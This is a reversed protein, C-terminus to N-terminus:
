IEIGGNEETDMDVDEWPVLEANVVIDQPTYITLYVNYQNGQKLGGTPFKIPYPFQPVFTYTKEVTGSEGNPEQRKLVITLQLQYSPDANTPPVMIGTGLRKYQLEERVIEHSLQVGLGGNEDSLHTIVNKYKKEDEDYTSTVSLPLEVGNQNEDYALNGDAGLGNAIRTTLIGAGNAETVTGAATETVTEDADATTLDAVKLTVKNRVVGMLKLEKVYLEGARNDGKAVMFNIRSLAHKFQMTPVPAEAQNSKFYERFYKGSYAYQSWTDEAGGAEPKYSRGWLVDTYGDIPIDVTVTSAGTTVSEQYPHYGYFTYNYWNGMPYFRTFGDAWAIRTVDNVDDGNTDMPTANAKVNGGWTQTNIQGNTSTGMGMWNMYRGANDTNYQSWNIAPASSQKKAAALCFMGIGETTTFLNTTEGVGEGVFARTFAQNGGSGLKIEVDSNAELVWKEDETLQPTEEAAAEAFNDSTSCGTFTLSAMGLFFLLYKSNRM